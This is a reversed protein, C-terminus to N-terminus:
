GQKTFSSLHHVFHKKLNEAYAEANDRLLQMYRPYLVPNTLVSGFAVHFIERADFQDLLVSWNTVDEPAPAKELQASVHYSLKDTEYRERSFIYVEKLFTPDIAAITHLGELYSTGATKLHVLGRTQRMAAPYISFKDSGSHLSLKYPGLARAIAAHGAIDAEFAAVDGIYDVGKEFRGIYRPALSVWSVGLRKLESAVYVHEAHSTTLDTEDVSVELEFSREGAKKVLHEYMMAVHAVARGYKVAAKYLTADDFHIRMGEFEFSRGALGSKGPQNDIPLEAAMSKLKSLNASEALNNVHEGPDITYFTYGAALCIDIDEPTKLHDADAGFGGQWGESFLGWIADDMVQQPSRSTRAMERISQQAFIPTIQGAFTRVARVHGATALGVRDGMGASTKLGILSPNTWPLNARLFAANAPSLAGVYLARGVLDSCEGEVGAAKEVPSLLVFKRGEPFQALAFEMDGEVTLSTPVINLRTELLKPNTTM